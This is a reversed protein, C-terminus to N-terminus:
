PPTLSTPVKDLTEVVFYCNKLVPSRRLFETLQEAERLNYVRATDQTHTSRLYRENEVGIVYRRTGQYFTSVTALNSKPHQIQTTQTM